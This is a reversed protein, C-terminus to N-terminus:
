ATLHPFMGEGRGSWGLGGLAAPGGLLAVRDYGGLDMRPPVRALQSSCGGIVLTAGAVVTVLRLGNTILRKSSLMSGKRGCTAESFPLFCVRSPHSLAEAAGGEQFLNVALLGARRRPKPTRADRPFRERRLTPVLRRAISAPSRGCVLAPIREEASM